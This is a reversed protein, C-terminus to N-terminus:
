WEDTLPEEEWMYQLSDEGLVISGVYVKVEESTPLVEYPNNYIYLFELKKCQDLPSFDAIENNRLNCVRLNKCMTLFEINELQCGNLHLVEVEPYYKLLEPLEISEKTTADKIPQGSFHLEEMTRNEQLMERDVYCIDTCLGTLTPHNLLSEVGVYKGPAGFLPGKVADKGIITLEQLQTLEGLGSIDLPEEGWDNEETAITTVHLKKLKSRKTLEQLAEESDIDLCLREINQLCAIDKASLLGEGMIWLTKLEPLNCLQSCDANEGAEINVEELETLKTFFGCEALTLNRVYFRKLHTLEALADINTYGDSACEIFLVELNKCCAVKRLDITGTKNVYDRVDGDLYLERLKTLEELGEPMTEIDLHTLKLIEVDKLDIKNKEKLMEFFARMDTNAYFIDTSVYSIDAEESFFMIPQLNEIRTIGTLMHMDLFGSAIADNCKWSQITKQFEAESACDRYDVFSYYLVEYHENYNGRVYDWDIYKISQFEEPTIDEYEKGFIDKCFVHIVDGDEEREPEEKWQVLEAERATVNYRWIIAVSGIAILLFLVLWKYLAKYTKGAQEQKGYDINVDIKLHGEAEDLLYRVGCHPCVARHNKKMNLVAGCSQCELKMTKQQM